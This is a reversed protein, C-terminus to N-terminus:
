EGCVVGGPLSLQQISTPSHGVRIAVANAFRPQRAASAQRCHAAWPFNFTWTAVHSHRPFIPMLPCSFSNRHDHQAVTAWRPFICLSLFESFHGNGCWCFWSCSWLFGATRSVRQQRPKRMCGRQFQAVTAPFLCIAEFMEKLPLTAAVNEMIDVRSSAHRFSFVIWLGFSSVM